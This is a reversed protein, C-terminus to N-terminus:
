SDNRSVQTARHQTQLHKGRTRQSNAHSRRNRLAGHREDCPAVHQANKTATQARAVVDDIDNSILILTTKPQRSLYYVLPEKEKFILCDAEDIAILMSKEALIGEFTQKLRFM